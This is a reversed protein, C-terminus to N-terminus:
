HHMTQTQLDLGGCHKKLGNMEAKRVQSIVIWNVHFRWDVAFNIAINDVAPLNWLDKCWTVFRSFEHHLHRVTANVTLM